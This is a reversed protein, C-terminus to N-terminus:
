SLKLAMSFVVNSADRCRDIAKELLEHLSGLALAQVADRRGSYLDKCLELLLKDAEGELRQLRDKQVKVTATEPTHAVGKVMELVVGTAQIIFRIQPSFDVDRLLSRSVLWQEAFKELTKPIRYLASALKEIDERDIPTVFSRCLRERIDEALGSEKRSITLAELTPANEPQQQLTLLARASQCAQEASAELLTFYDGDGGIIRQLSFM